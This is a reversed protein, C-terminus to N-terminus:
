ADPRPGKTISGFMKVRTAKAISSYRVIFYQALHECLEGEIVFWERGKQRFAVARL